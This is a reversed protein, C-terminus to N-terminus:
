QPKPLNSNTAVCVTIGDIALTSFTGGDRASPERGEEYMMEAAAGEWSRGVEM